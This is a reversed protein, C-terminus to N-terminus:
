ELKGPMCGPARILLVPVSSGRLIRDAVSGWVWRTIGSAGHSAMIVLDAQAGRAYEVIQEAPKGELVKAVAHIGRGKLDGVMQQLYREADSKMESRMRKVDAGSLAIGGRTPLQAPEVVRIVEVAPVNCGTSIAQVHPLVCEALESGDLPVLIKSYM